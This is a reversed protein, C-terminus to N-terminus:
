WFGLIFLRKHSLMSYLFGGILRWRSIALIIRKDYLCTGKSPTHMTKTIISVRRLLGIAGDLTIWTWSILLCHSCQRRISDLIFIFHCLAFNSIVIIGLLKAPSWTFNTTPNMYFSAVFTMLHMASAYICRSLICYGM